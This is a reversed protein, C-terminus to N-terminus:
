RLGGEMGATGGLIWNDSLLGVRAADPAMALLFSVPDGGLRADPDMDMWPALVAAHERASPWPVRCDPEDLAVGDMDILDLDIPGDISREITGLAGVLARAGLTTEIQIVAAMADPGDFDSVHYLPSIGEVQDGPLGDIAVIAERFLREADTSTSDMSIVARRHTTAGDTGDAGASTTGAADTGAAGDAAGDAVGDAASADTRESTGDGRVRIATVAVDDCPVGVDPRLDHATVEVAGVGTGAFGTGVFGTGDAGVTGDGDDGALLRDAVARALGGLRRGDDLADDGCEDKIVDAVTRAIVDYAMADYAMTDSADAGSSSTADPHLTVDVSFRGAGDVDADARVGTLRIVDYSEYVSNMENDM